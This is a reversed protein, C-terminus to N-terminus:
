EPLTAWVHEEAILTYEDVELTKWRDYMIEDGPKLNVPLRVGEKSIRGPGVALVTGRDPDKIAADPLHIGGATVPNPKAPEILIFNNLPELKM